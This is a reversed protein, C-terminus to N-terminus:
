PRLISHTRLYGAQIRGKKLISGTDLIIPSGKGFLSITSHSFDSEYKQYASTSGTDFGVYMHNGGVKVSDYGWFSGNKVRIYVPGDISPSTCGVLLLISFGMAKIWRWAMHNHEM